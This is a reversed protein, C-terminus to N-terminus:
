ARREGAALELVALTERVNRDLSMAGADSPVPQGRMRRWFLIAEVLARTDRPDPLISGNVGPTIWEAAGNQRTTIVPRGAALAELCVNASPEYIPLTVLLDAAAYVEEVARVPGAFLVQSPAAAPPSGKGAVVLRLDALEPTEFAALLYPLGKREWGSGVFAIVYRGTELGLRQRFQSGDLGQYRRVDIGNRVLHIRNGPFAFRETIEQRVMESNVIVRRTNRPDFTARELALMTRHFGGLGVLPRRWWSAFERRRQLWMAHVGDGARYVDQRTTRELSFVCDFSGAGLAKRVADDFRRPRTARTGAAEIRHLTVGQMTDPWSEAFLHPEHGARVLASLLRGLYLEAGGTSAHRRRILALKM